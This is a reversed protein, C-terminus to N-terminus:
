ILEEFILVELAAKKAETLTYGCIYIYDEVISDFSSRLNLPYEKLTQNKM